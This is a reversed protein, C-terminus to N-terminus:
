PVKPAIRLLRLELFRVITVLAAGSIIAYLMADTGLPYLCLAVLMAVSIISTRAAIGIGANRREITLVSKFQMLGKTIMAALIGFVLLSGVAYGGITIPDNSGFKFYLQLPYTFFAVSALFAFNLTIGVHDPKFFDLFLRHHMWWLGCLIAFTGLFIAFQPMQSLLEHPNEPVRLNFALNFLSFGFVIDSFSEIRSITKHDAGSLVAHRDEDSMSQAKTRDSRPVEATGLRIAISRGFPPMDDFEPRKIKELERNPQITKRGPLREVCGNLALQQAFKM